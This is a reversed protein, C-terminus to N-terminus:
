ADEGLLTGSLVLQAYYQRTLFYHVWGIRNMRAIVVSKDSEPANELNNSSWVFMCFLTFTVIYCVTYIQDLFTVYPLSPLAQRYSQQLFVLTLLATSPIAIRVDWLSAALNPTVLTILMVVVLPLILQLISAFGSKKYSIQLWVQSFDSSDDTTQPKFGFSSPNTQLFESVKVSDTAYGVIDVFPGVGSQKHDAVLRVKEASFVDSMSNLGFAIPFTVREFPFRHYDVNHVYFRGAFRVLQYYDGDGTQLPKPYYPKMMWDWSNVRNMPSIVQDITVGEQDLIAQFERGWHAWVLGEAAFSQTSSNFDYVNEAFIGLRVSIAPNNSSTSDVVPSITGGWNYSKVLFYGARNACVITILGVIGLTIFFKKFIGQM